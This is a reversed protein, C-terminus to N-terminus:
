QLSVEMISGVRRNSGARRFMRAWISDPAGTQNIAWVKMHGRDRLIEVLKDVVEGRLRASGSNYFHLIQAHFNEETNPLYVVAVARLEDNEVGIVWENRGDTILDRYHEPAEDFGGLVLTGAPFAARFLAQMSVLELLDPNQLLFVM